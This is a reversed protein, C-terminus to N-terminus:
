ASGLHDLLLRSVEESAELQLWHGADEIREYRWSAKVHDASGTMQAETLALDGSSWIGLTPCLIPPLELRSGILSEPPLNARYLNLGATLAGPVALRTVVADADPHGSWTRLNAFDDDALWQEAIGTFQFLLMYWSKERQAVGAAAFSAPHGVSLAALSAVRHPDFAALAWGLAAGWDHGVVHARDAGAHDLIALLDALLHVLNYAEVSEPRDSGGAGRLDPVLVRYGADVLAPVQHRWLEGTDPWGHILLVCPGSGQDSLEIGIGNADIRM